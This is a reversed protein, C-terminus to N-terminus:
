SPWALGTILLISTLPAPDDPQRHDAPTKHATKYRFTGDDVAMWSYPLSPQGVVACAARKSFRYGHAPRWRRLLTRGNQLPCQRASDWITVTRDNGVTTV